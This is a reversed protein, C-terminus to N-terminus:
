RSMELPNRCLCLKLPNLCSQISLKLKICYSHLTAIRFKQLSSLYAVIRKFPKADDIKQQHMDWIWYFIFTHISLLIFMVINLLVGVEGHQYSVM